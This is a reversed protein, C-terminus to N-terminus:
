FLNVPESGAVNSILGARLSEVLSSLSAIPLSSETAMLDSNCVVVGAQLGKDVPFETSLRLEGFLNTWTHDTRLCVCALRVSRWLGLLHALEVRWHDLADVSADRGEKGESFRYGM